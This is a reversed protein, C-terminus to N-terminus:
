LPKEEFLYGNDVSKAKESKCSKEVWSRGVMAEAIIPVESIFTQMEEIMAQWVIVRVENALLQPTQVIVEDRIVTVM